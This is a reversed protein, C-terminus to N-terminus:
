EIVLLRKCAPCVGLPAQSKLEILRGGEISARCVGCQSGNLVGIAVGGARAAVKEYVAMAEPSVEAAAQARQAELRALTAKIAGGEKQFSEVARAEATELDSLARLVQDELQGIKSIEADVKALDGELTARRKAIGALEKTRAEVNRYNGSAAEIAAQVGAEKKALSADEDVIRTRRRQADKRLAEVKEQKEGVVGRKKRAELIVTRQPLEDLQKKQQRIDLDIQQIRLLGAIDDHQVQM